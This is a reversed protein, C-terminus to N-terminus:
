ENFDEKRARKKLKALARGYIGEVSRHTKNKLTAIESFPLNFYLHLLIIDYESANIFKRYRNMLSSFKDDGPLLPEESSVEDLDSQILEPRKSRVYDYALNKAITVLYFKLNRTPDLDDTHNMLHIFTEQTLDEAYATDRIIFLIVHHVLGAYAQYVFDFTEEERKKLGLVIQENINM